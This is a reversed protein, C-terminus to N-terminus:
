AKGTRMIKVQVVEAGKRKAKNAKLKTEYIEL